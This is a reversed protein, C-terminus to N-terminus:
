NHFSCHACGTWVLNGNYAQLFSVRCVCWLKAVCSHLLKNDFWNYIIWTLLMYPSNCADGRTPLTWGVPRTKSKLQLFKLLCQEKHAHHICKIWMPLTVNCPQVCCTWSHLLLASWQGVPTERCYQAMTAQLQQWFSCRAWTPWGNQEARLASHPPGPPSPVGIRSTSFPPCFHTAVNWSNCLRAFVVM